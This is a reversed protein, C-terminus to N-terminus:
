ETAEELPPVLQLHTFIVTFPGGAQLELLEEIAKRTGDNAPLSLEVNITSTWHEASHDLLTANAIMIPKNASM